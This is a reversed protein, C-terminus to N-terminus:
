RRAKITWSGDQNDFWELETGAAWGTQALLEKPLELFIGLDDEQVELTYTKQMRGALFAAELWKRLNAYPGLNKNSDYEDYCRESRLHMFEREHFWDDFENYLKTM